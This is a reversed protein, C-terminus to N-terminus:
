WRSGVHAARYHWDGGIPPAAGPCSAPLPEGIVQACIRDVSGPERSACAALALFLLRLHKM